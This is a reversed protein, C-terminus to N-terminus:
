GLIVNQGDSCGSGPGLACSDPPAGCCAGPEAAHVGGLRQVLVHASSLSGPSWRIWILWMISSLKYVLRPLTGGPQSVILISLM